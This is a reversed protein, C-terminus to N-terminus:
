ARLALDALTDSGGIESFQRGEVCGSARRLGLRHGVQSRVGAGAVRLPTSFARNPV